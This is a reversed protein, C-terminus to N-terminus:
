VRGAYPLDLPSRRGPLGAVDPFGQADVRVRTGGFRDDTRLGGIRTRSAEVCLWFSRGRVPGGVAFARRLSCLAVPNLRGCAVRPCDARIDDRRATAPHLLRNRGIDARRRDALFSVSLCGASQIDEVR